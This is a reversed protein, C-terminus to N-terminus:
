KDVRSMLVVTEVHKSILPYSDFILSIFMIRKSPVYGNHAKTNPFIDVYFTNILERKM